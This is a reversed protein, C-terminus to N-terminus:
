AAAANAAQWAALTTAEPADLLRRGQMHDQPRNVSDIAILREQAFYYISFAPQTGNANLAMDGRVEMHDYGLSRGVMQLKVDYQDSWFWPAAKFPRQKGVIAAAASKAQEVANQVSELRLWQGAADRRVTCDGVAYVDPDCTRSQDDVVIGNACELGSANGLEQNVLAGIGVLVLDAEHSTGDATTVARVHGDTGSL